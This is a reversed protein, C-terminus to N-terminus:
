EEAQASREVQEAAARCWAAYEREFGLGRQLTMHMAFWPSRPNALEGGLRARM